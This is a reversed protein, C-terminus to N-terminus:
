GVRCRRCALLTHECCKLVGSLREMLSSGFASWVHLLDAAAGLSDRVKGTVLILVSQPMRPDLTLVSQAAVM